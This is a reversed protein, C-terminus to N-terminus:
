GQILMHYIDDMVSGDNDQDFLDFLNQVFGDAEMMTVDSPDEEQPVDVVKKDFVTNIFDNAASIAKEYGNDSTILENIYNNNESSMLADASFDQLMAVIASSITPMIAQIIMTTEEISITTVASTRHYLTDMAAKNGNFLNEITIDAENTDSLIGLLPMMDGSNMSSVIRAKFASLVGPIVAHIVSSLKQSSIGFTSALELIEESTINDLVREVLKM